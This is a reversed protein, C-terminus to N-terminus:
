EIQGTDNNFASVKLENRFLFHANQRLSQCPFRLFIRLAISINPFLDILPMELTEALINKPTSSLENCPEDKIFLKEDTIELLL